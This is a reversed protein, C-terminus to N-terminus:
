GGTGVLWRDGRASLAFGAAALTIAIFLSALTAVPDYSTPLGGDYALMAVFHTAWIGSGACVGTIAAWGLQRLDRSAVAISYMIFSTLATSICVVAALGVLWHDHETALCAFVRYMDKSSSGRSHSRLLNVQAGKITDESWQM